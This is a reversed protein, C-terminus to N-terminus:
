VSASSMTSSSTRLGLSYRPLTSSTRLGLCCFIFIGVMSMISSIYFFRSSFGVGLFSPLIYQKQYLPPLGLITTPGSQKNLIVSTATALKNASKIPTAGLMQRPNSIMTMAPTVKSIQQFIANPNVTPNFGPRGGRFGSMWLLDQRFRTFVTSYTVGNSMKYSGDKNCYICVQLEYPRELPASDSSCSSYQFIRGGSGMTQCIYRGGFCSVM